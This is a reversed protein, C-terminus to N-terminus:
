LVYDKVEKEKDFRIEDGREEQFFTTFQDQTIHDENIRIEGIWNLESM